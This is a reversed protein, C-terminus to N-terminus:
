EMWEALLLFVPEGRHPREAAIRRLEVLSEHDM